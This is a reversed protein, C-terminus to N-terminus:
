KSDVKTFNSYDKENIQILNENEDCPYIQNKSLVKVSNNTNGDFILFDRRWYESSRCVAAFGPLINAEPLSSIRFIKGFERFPGRHRESLDRLLLALSFDLDIYEIAEQIPSENLDYLSHSGAVFTGEFNRIRTKIYEILSHNSDSEGFKAELSKSDIWYVDKVSLLALSIDRTEETVFIENILEITNPDRSDIELTLESEGHRITLGGDHGGSVVKEIFFGTIAGVVLVAILKVFENM